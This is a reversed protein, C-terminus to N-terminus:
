ITGLWNIFLSALVGALASFPVAVWPNDMSFQGQITSPYRLVLLAVILVLTFQMGFLGAIYGASLASSFISTATVAVTTFLIIGVAGLVRWKYNSDDNVSVPERPM